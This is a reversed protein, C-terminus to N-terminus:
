PTAKAAPEEVPTLSKKASNFFRNYNLIYRNSVQKFISVGPDKVIDNEAVEYDNLSDDLSKAPEGSVNAEEIGGGIGNLDMGPVDMPAVPAVVSTTKTTEEKAAEPSITAQPAAALSSGSSGMARNVEAEIAATQKAIDGKFDIAKKGQAVLQDNVKKQVQDAIDRIQAAKSNIDGMAVEAGAWNGAALDNAMGVASTAVSQLAPINLGGKFDLPSLKIANKCASSGFSVGSKGASFCSKESAVTPLSKINMKANPDETNYDGGGALTPDMGSDTETGKVKAKLEELKKINDKVDKKRGTLDAAVWYLLGANAFFFISRSVAPGMVALMVKGTASVAITLVSSLISFLGGTGSTGVGAGAAAFAGWALTVGKSVAAGMGGGDFDFCNGSSIYLPNPVVGYVSMLELLALAGAATLAVGVAYHLAERKKINKLEENEMELRQEIVEKQFDGNGDKLESEKLKLESRKKKQYDTYSKALILDGAIMAISSASFVATSWAFNCSILAVSGLSSLAISSVAKVYPTAGTGAHAASVPFLILQLSLLM